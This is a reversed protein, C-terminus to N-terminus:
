EGMIPTIIYYGLITPELEDNENAEVIRTATILDNILACGLQKTTVNCKFRHLGNEKISEINTAGITQLTNFVKDINCGKVTVLMENIVNLKVRVDKWLNM